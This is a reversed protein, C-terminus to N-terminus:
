RFARETWEIPNVAVGNVRLEWHLHSGTVVGTAGMKGLPAGRELTQGVEVDVESLHYYGSLVGAGHDLIVAGGRVQLMDALVVIGKAPAVIVDGTEGDIDLGTHYSVLGTSYRRRTGFQSTIPGEFPWDFPGEWHIVSTALAYIPALRLLEPQTIAPDLLAGVAPTLTITEQRYGADMVTLARTLQARQGDDALVDMELTLEGPEDTARLGALGVHSLGDESVFSVPRERIRGVVRSPLNTTARVICTHGQM